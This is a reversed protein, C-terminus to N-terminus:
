VLIVVCELLSTIFPNSTLIHSFCRCKFALNRTIWMSVIWTNILLPIFLIYGMCIYPLLLLFSEITQSLTSPGVLILSIALCLRASM